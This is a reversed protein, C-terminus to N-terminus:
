EPNTVTFKDEQESFADTPITILDFWYPWLKVTKEETDVEIKCDIQPGQPWAEVTVIETTKM